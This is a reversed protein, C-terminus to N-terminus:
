EFIPKVPATDVGFNFDPREPKEPRPLLLFSDVNVLIDRSTLFSDVQMRAATIAERRCRELESKRFDIMKEQYYSRVKERPFRISTDVVQFGLIIMLLLGVWIWVFPRM